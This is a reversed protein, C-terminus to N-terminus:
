PKRIVWSNITASFNWACNRCRTTRNSQEDISYILGTTLGDTGTATATFTQNTSGLACAYTFSTTASPITVGCTTGTGYNRNDQYYQELQTRLEALTAPAEQVRGRRLYDQYAPLAITALVAAIVLTIMLEILSFGANLRNM